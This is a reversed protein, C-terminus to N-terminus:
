KLKDLHLRTPFHHLPQKECSSMTVATSSTEYNLLQDALFKIIVLLNCSTSLSPTWKVHECHCCFSNVVWLWEGGRLRAPKSM